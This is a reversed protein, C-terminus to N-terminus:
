NNSEDWDSYVTVSIISNGGDPPFYYQDDDGTYLNPYATFVSGSKNVSLQTIAFSGAGGSGSTIPNTLKLRPGCLKFQETSPLDIQNIRKAYSFNLTLALLSLIFVIRM